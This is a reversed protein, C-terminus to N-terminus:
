GKIIAPLPLPEFTIMAQGTGRSSYHEGFGTQWESPRVVIENRDSDFWRRFNHSPCFLNSYINYPSPALLVAYDAVRRCESVAKEIDEATNLHELTHPNYAVGFMKDPFPMDCEDGLVGGPVALVEPDIDLTYDGDPPFMSWRQLGVSLLPKGVTDCYQRSWDYWWHREANERISTTVQYVAILGVGGLFVKWGVNM